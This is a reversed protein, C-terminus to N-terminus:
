ALKELDYKSYDDQKHEVGMCFDLLKTLVKLNVWNEKHNPDKFLSIYKEDIFLM